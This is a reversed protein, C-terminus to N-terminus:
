KRFLSQRFFWFQDRVNIEHLSICNLWKFYYKLFAFLKRERLYFFALSNLEFLPHNFYRHYENPIHTKINYVLQIADLYKKEAFRINTANNAHIRYKTGVIDNYGFYGNLGHHIHLLWDYQFYEVFFSPITHNYKQRFVMASNTIPITYKFYYHLDFKLPPKFNDDFKIYESKDIERYNKVNAFVCAVEENEELFEVQSQLYKKSIFVDDSDIYAIYKSTSNSIVFHQNKSM